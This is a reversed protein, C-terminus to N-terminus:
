IFYHDYLGKKFILFVSLFHQFSYCQGFFFPKLSTYNNLKLSNKQTHTHTYPFQPMLNNILEIASFSYPWEKSRLQM